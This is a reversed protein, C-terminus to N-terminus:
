SVLMDADIECGAIVARGDDHFDCTQKGFLRRTSCTAADCRWEAPIAARRVANAERLAAFAAARRAESGSTHPGDREDKDREDKHTHAM